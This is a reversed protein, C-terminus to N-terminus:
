KISDWAKKSPFKEKLITLARHHGVGINADDIKQAAKPRTLKFDKRKFQIALDIVKQRTADGLKKRMNSAADLPLLDAQGQLRRLMMETFIVEATWNGGRAHAEQAGRLAAECSMLDQQIDREGKLRASVERIEIELGFLVRSGLGAAISQARDLTVLLDHRRLLTQGEDRIRADGRTVKAM